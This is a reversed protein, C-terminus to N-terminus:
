NDLDRLVDNLSRTPEGSRVLAVELDLHDELESRLSEDQVLQELFQGRADSDLARFEAWLRDVSTNASV